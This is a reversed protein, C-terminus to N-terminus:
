STPRRLLLKTRRWLVYSLGILAPATLAFYLASTDESWRGTEEMFIPVGGYVAGLLPILACFTKVLRSMELKSNCKPCEIRWPNWM